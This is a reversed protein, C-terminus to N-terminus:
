RAGKGVGLGAAKASAMAGMAPGDAAWKLAMRRSLYASAM